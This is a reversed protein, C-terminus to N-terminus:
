DLKLDYTTERLAICCGDPEEKESDEECGEVPHSSEVDRDGGANNGGDVCENRTASVPTPEELRWILISSLAM